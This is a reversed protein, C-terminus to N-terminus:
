LYDMFFWVKIQWAQLLYWEQQVLVMLLPPTVM